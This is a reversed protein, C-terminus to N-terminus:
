CIEIAEGRCTVWDSALNIVQLQDLTKFAFHQTFSQFLPIANMREITAKMISEHEFVVLVRWSKNFTFDADHLLDRCRGQAIDAMSGSSLAQVHKRLQKILKKTDKGNHIELAFLKYSLDRLELMFIGDPIIHLGNPLDVKSRARLNKDRRNNGTKDFYTDFYVVESEAIESWQDLMIMFNITDRRHWYDSSVKTSGATLMKIDREDVRMEDMLLRKGHETLYYMNENRGRRSVVEGDMCAILPKGRDRLKSLSANVNSRKTHVGLRLLHSPTQFKYKAIARLIREQSPPLNKVM